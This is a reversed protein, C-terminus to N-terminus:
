KLVERRLYHTHLKDHSKPSLPKDLYENYIRKIGSNKYSARLQGAKDINYLAKMRAKLANIDSNIPQGGGGICGGPCTMVEVFHLDDRGNRIDELLKAANKLGNVVAVGLEMGGIFVKTEKIGNLGRIENLEPIEFDNDTILYNATRIAAEM